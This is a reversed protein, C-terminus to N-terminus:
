VTLNAGAQEGHPVVIEAFRHPPPSGILLEHFKNAIHDVSFFFAVVDALRIEHSRRSGHDVNSALYKGTMLEGGRVSSPEMDTKAYDASVPVGGGTRYRGIKQSAYENLTCMDCLQASFYDNNRVQSQSTTPLRNKEILTIKAGLYAAFGTAVLGGSGAGVIVLDYREDHERQSESM